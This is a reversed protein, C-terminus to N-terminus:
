ATRRRVPRGFLGSAEVRGEAVLQRYRDAIQKQAATYGGRPLPGTPEGSAPVALRPRMTVNGTNTRLIRKM